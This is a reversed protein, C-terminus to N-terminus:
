PEMESHEIVSWDWTFYFDQPVVESAPDLYGAAYMRQALELGVYRIHWPEYIFDTIHPEFRNSYPWVPLSKLPYSMVFGFTHANQELWDYLLQNRHDYPNLNMGTWAVDYATGLQHESFGPRASYNEAASGYHADERAYVQRQDHYSRYDSFISLRIGDAEAAAQMQELAERAESSKGPDYWSPLGTQRNVQTDLPAGLLLMIVVFYQWLLALSTVEM